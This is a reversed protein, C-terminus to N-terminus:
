VWLLKSACSIRTYRHAGVWLSDVRYKEALDFCSETDSVESWKPETWNLWTPLPDVCQTPERGGLGGRPPDHWHCKSEDQPHGEISIKGASTRGIFYTCFYKEQRRGESFIHVSIRLYVYDYSANAIKQDIQFFKIILLFIRGIDKRSFRLLFEWISAKM